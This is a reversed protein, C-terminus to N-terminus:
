LAELLLFGSAPLLLPLKAAFVTHDMVNRWVREAPLVLPWPRAAGRNVAVLLTELGFHRAYVLVDGEAYLVELGGAQLPRSCRRLAILARYHALLSQNPLATNNTHDPAALDPWPMPRRNDPDAGGELGIEDGYYICPVGIYTLLLVAAIESLKQDALLSHLRPVDHSNLSNLQALQNAFPISARAQQWAAALEAADLRVPAGRHDCAALFGWLPWTFGFYNMAGDEEAGQLWPSAEFFHEGLLYATPKLAKLHRRIDTILRHNGSHSGDDGMMQIVDFRWGDIGDDAGAQSEGLWYQLVSAPLRYILDHLAPNSYNLKPLSKVGLWSVYNEDPLFSFYDRSAAGSRAAQFWHHSSGTHNVVADLVIHMQRQHLKQVLARFQQQDGFVPDVTLYDSTDYKHSSPSLFIPNLYIASIGLDSLYDLKEAIGALNGGYFERAGQKPNPLEHWAKIAANPHWHPAAVTGVGTGAGTGAGTGVGASSSQDAQPGIRFRDPFIQYFVAQELWQPPLSLPQLAFDSAFSPTSPSLGAQNLWLVRTATLLPDLPQRFCRSVNAQNHWDTNSLYLKFRYRLGEHLRFPMEAQWVGAEVAQMAVHHEEGDPYSVLSARLLTDPARLRISALGDFEHPHTAAQGRWTLFAATGDHYPQLFM